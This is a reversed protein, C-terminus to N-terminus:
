KRRICCGNCTWEGESDLLKESVSDEDGCLKCVVDQLMNKNRRPVPSQVALKKDIAIDDKHADKEIMSDFQNKRPGILLSEPKGFKQSKKSPKKSKSNHINETSVTRRSTKVPKAKPKPKVEPSEKVSENNKSLFKDVMRVLKDYQFKNLKKLKEELKDM